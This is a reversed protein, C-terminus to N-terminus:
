RLWCVQIESKLAFERPLLRWAIQGSIVVADICHREADYGPWPCGPCASLVPEAKAFHSHLVQTLHQLTVGIMVILNPCM